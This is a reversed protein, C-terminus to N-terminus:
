SSLFSKYISSFDLNKNNEKQAHRNFLTRALAGMPISASCQQANELALDLDKIMLHTTFGGEYDCSAPAHSMVGPVPNYVDLVWNKGSSNAMIESLTNINLGNAAGLALTEATGSMMIALLMNNCLKALQGCGSPGALFCRQGMCKFIPRAREFHEETGGVIFTLRGEIAGLVGGSVPADIFAMNKEYACRAIKKTTVADITSADIILTQPQIVDLLQTKTCYLAEVHPGSPLMSIVIDAKDVAAQACTVTTGGESSFADLAHSSIDFGKVLYGAKSLNLAMPKGMHGLGIFGITTM